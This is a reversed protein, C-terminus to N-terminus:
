ESKGTAEIAAKLANQYLARDLTNMNSWEPNVHGCVLDWDAGSARMARANDLAPQDLRFTRVQDTPVPITASWTHEAPPSGSAPDPRAGWQISFGQKNSTIRPLPIESGDAFTWANRRRRRMIWTLQGLVWGIVLLFAIALYFGEGQPGLGYGEPWHTVVYYLGGLVAGTIAALLAIALM